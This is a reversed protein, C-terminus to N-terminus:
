KGEGAPYVIAFVGRRFYVANEYMNLYSIIKSVYARLFDFSALFMLRVYKANTFGKRIRFVNSLPM